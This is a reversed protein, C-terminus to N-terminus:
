IFCPFNIDRRELFARCPTLGRCLVFSHKAFFIALLKERGDVKMWLLGTCWYSRGEWIALVLYNTLLPFRFVWWRKRISWWSFYNRIFSTCSLGWLFWICSLGFTIVRSCRLHSKVFSKGSNWRSMIEFFCLLLYFLHLSRSRRLSVVISNFHSKFLLKPIRNLSFRINFADLRKNFSFSDADVLLVYKILSPCSKMICYIFVIKLSSLEKQIISSEDVVLASLIFSSKVKSTSSAVNVKNFKKYLLACISSANVSISICRQM